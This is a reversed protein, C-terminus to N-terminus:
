GDKQTGYKKRIVKELATRSGYWGLGTGKQQLKELLSSLRPIQNAWLALREPNSDYGALTLKSAASSQHLVDVWQLLREPKSQLDSSIPVRITVHDTSSLLPSRLTQRLQDPTTRPDFLWTVAITKQQQRVTRSLQQFWQIFEPDNLLTTDQIAIDVGKFHATWKKFDQNPKPSFVPQFNASTVQDGEVQLVSSRAPGSQHSISQPAGIGNLRILKGSSTLRYLSVRKDTTLSMGNKGTQIFYIRQTHKEMAHDLATGPPKKGAIRNPPQHVIDRPKNVSSVPKPATRDSAVPAPYFSKSHHSGKKVPIPSHSRSAPEDKPPTWKGAGPKEHWQKDWLSDTGSSAGFLQKGHFSGNSSADPHAFPSSASFFWSDASLSVPGTFSYVVIGIISVTFLFLRIKKRIGFESSTPPSPKPQENGSGTRKQLHYMNRM